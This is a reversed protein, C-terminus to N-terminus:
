TWWELPKIGPDLAAEIHASAFVQDLTDVFQCLYEQAHWWDGITRREQELWEPSIRPCDNATVKVRKWDDGGEVWEHYFFGRKGFPTSLLVIRGKSVALMPRVAYYLSDPVRSAEDVVLLSVGSYGRITREDGPLSIIRSGNSFRLRLASEEIITAPLTPLANIPTKLKAFLEQSQRLAPALLLVLANENYLACHLGLLATTTSKGSQRSCLLITQRAKSRLADRQWADPEFGAREAFMVADTAEISLRTAMLNRMATQILPTSCGEQKQLLM